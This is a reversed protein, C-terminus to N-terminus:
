DNQTEVPMTPVETREMASNTGSRRSISRRWDRHLYFSLHASMLMRAANVDRRKLAEFIQRHETISRYDDPRGSGAFQRPSAILGQRLNEEILPLIAAMAQNDAVALLAAHFHADVLILPERAALREEGQKVWYEINALHEDNLRQVIVELAGIEVFVRLEILDQLSTDIEQLQALEVRLQARDFDTVQLKRPSERRVLGAGILQSLAERLVTRSVNLAEALQREPPLRDGAQVGDQLLYGKLTTVVRESLNQRQLMPLSLFDLSERQQSM